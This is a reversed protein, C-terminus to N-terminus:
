EVMIMSNSFRHYDYRVFWLILASANIRTVPCGKQMREMHQVSGSCSNRLWHILRHNMLCCIKYKLTITFKIPNRCIKWLWIHIKKRNVNISTYPISLLDSSLSDDTCNFHQRGWRPQPASLECVAVAMAVFGSRRANPHRHNTQDPEEPMKWKEKKKM